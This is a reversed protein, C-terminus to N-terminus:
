DSGWPRKAAGSPAFYFPCSVLAIAGQSDAILGLVPSLFSDHFPCCKARDADAGPRAPFRLTPQQGARKRRGNREAAGADSGILAFAIAAGRAASKAWQPQPPAGIAQRPRPCQQGHAADPRVIGPALVRVVPAVVLGEPPRGIFWAVPKASVIVEVVHDDFDVVVGPRAHGAAAASNEDMHRPRTERRGRAADRQPRAVELGQQAM